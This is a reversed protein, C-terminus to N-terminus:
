LCIPGRCGNTGTLRQQRLSTVCTSKLFRTLLNRKGSLPHTSHLPCARDPALLITVERWFVSTFRTDRDFIFTKSLGQTAWVHDVYLQAFGQATIEKPVFFAMKSFRDVFVCISDHGRPTLPLKTIFDYSLSDFLGEPLELPQLLGYPRHRRAKNRQCPPCSSIFDIVDVKLSPWWFLKGVTRLTKTTGYHGAYPSDHTERIMLKRLDFNDPVVICSGKVVFGQANVSLLRTEASNADQLIEARLSQSERLIAKGLLDPLDFTLDSTDLTNSEASATQGYQKRSPPIGRRTVAIALMTSFESNLEALHVDDDKRPSIRPASLLATLTLNKV